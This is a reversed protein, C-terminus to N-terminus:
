VAAIIYSSLIPHVNVAAVAPEQGEEQERVYRVIIGRGLQDHPRMQIDRTYQKWIALRPHAGAFYHTLQGGRREHAWMYVCNTLCTIHVKAVREHRMPRGPGMATNRGSDNCLGRNRNM